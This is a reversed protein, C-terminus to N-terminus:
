AVEALEWYAYLEIDDTVRKLSYGKETVYQDGNGYALDYLGKFVWGEKKAKDPLLDETESYNFNAYLDTSFSNSGKICWNLDERVTITTYDTEADDWYITVQHSFDRKVGDRYENALSGFTNNGIAGGFYFGIFVIWIPLTYYLAKLFFKLLWWAGIALGYIVVGVIEFM